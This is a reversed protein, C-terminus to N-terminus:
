SNQTGVILWLMSLTILCYNFLIAALSNRKPLNSLSPLLIKASFPHFSYMGLFSYLDADFNKVVVFNVFITVSLNLLVVKM